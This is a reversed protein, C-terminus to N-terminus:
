SRHLQLVPVNIIHQYTCHFRSIGAHDSSVTYQEEVLSKLKKGLILVLLMVM